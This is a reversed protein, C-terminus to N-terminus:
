KRTHHHVARSGRGQSDWPGRICEWPSLKEEGRKSYLLVAGVRSIEHSPGRPRPFPMGASIFWSRGRTQQSTAGSWCGSGRMAKLRKKKEKRAAAASQKPSKPKPRLVSRRQQKWLGRMGGYRWGRWRARRRGNARQHGNVVDLFRGCRRPDRFKRVLASCPFCRCRRCFNRGAM